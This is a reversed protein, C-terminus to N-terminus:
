QPLLRKMGRRRDSSFDGVSWIGVMKKKLRRKRDAHAQPLRDGTAKTSAGSSDKIGKGEELDSDGRPPPVSLWVRRLCLTAPPQLTAQTSFPQPEEEKYRDHSAEHVTTWWNCKRHVTRPCHVMLTNIHAKRSSHAMLHVPKTSWKQVTPWSTCHSQAM